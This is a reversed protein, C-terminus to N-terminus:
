FSKHKTGGFCTGLNIYVAKIVHILIFGAM